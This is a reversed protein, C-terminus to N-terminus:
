VRKTELLAGSFLSFLHLTVMAVALLHPELYLLPTSSTILSTNLGNPNAIHPRSGKLSPASPHHHLSLKDSFNVFRKNRLQTSLTEM